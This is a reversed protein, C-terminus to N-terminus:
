DAEKSWVFLYKRDQSIQVRLSLEPLYRHRWVRVRRAADQPKDDARVPVKIAQGVQLKRALELFTDRRRNKRPGSTLRQCCKKAEDIPVIEVPRMTLREFDRLFHRLACDSLAEYM